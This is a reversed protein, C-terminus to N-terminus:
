PSSRPSRSTGANVVNGRCGIAQPDGILVDYGSGRVEVNSKRVANGRIQVTKGM